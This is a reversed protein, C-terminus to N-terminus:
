FSVALPNIGTGNKHIAAGGLTQLAGVIAFESITDVISKDFKGSM